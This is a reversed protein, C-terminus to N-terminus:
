HTCNKHEEHVASAHIAPIVEIPVEDMTLDGVQKVLEQEERKKQDMKEKKKALHKQRKKEAEETHWKKAKEEAKAISWGHQQLLDSLGAHDKYRKMMYVRWDVDQAPPHFDKPIDDGFVERFGSKQYVPDYQGIRQLRLYLRGNRVCDALDPRDYREYCAILINEDRTLSNNGGFVFQAQRNFIFPPSFAEAKTTAYAWQWDIVGVINGDDDVMLHDGKEDDHKIFLQDPKESLVKSAEVLERIELHWLYEDIPQTEQLANISIYHLAADIHTLYREKNTSFPGFFYPPEPKMFCGRRVIPGTRSSLGQDDAENMYICGIERYPLKIESLRIQLKAYEDIFRHLRHDPLDILGFYGERPLHCPNGNVFEYYFYDFPPASNDDTNSLAPPFFAEPVPIGKERLVKLTAVESSIDTNAIEKPPRHGRNQRVRLLWKVGDDFNLNFHLNFGANQNAEVFADVNMPVTLACPCGPRLQQAENIIFREHQRLQELLNGFYKVQAEAHVKLKAHRAEEHTKTQDLKLCGHYKPVNHKNCHSKVCWDCIVFYGIATKKCNMIDCHYEVLEPM